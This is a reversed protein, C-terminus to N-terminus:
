GKVPCYHTNIMLGAGVLLVMSLAVECIVLAHRALRGSASTTKRDSDRFVANLDPRSAQMAPALGFLVATLLSIFLTFLLVRSDLTITAANPFDGALALFLKIGVVTM